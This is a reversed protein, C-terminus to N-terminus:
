RARPLGLHHQAIIGRQIESTGAYITTGKAHRVTHEVRGGRPATPEGLSRLGDPGLLELFDAAQRELRETGFLKSMSGYAHVGQGISNLWATRRSLLRAVEFEARARGVREQTDPDDARRHGTRPDPETAWAVVDSMVRHMETWFGGGGHEKALAVSMVRWGGDVDGIRWRDDVHVDNYFTINTREGSLTDVRQVEVGPQNLPVLFTTLGKHKPVDPNTRALLFVYDGIHANTTFMKQGNIRWGDGERIARTAAAAADSGNEPETFGLVIIIDGALAPPIIERKQEETGVELIVSAIMMTTGIGYLPAAAISMEEHLAQVEMPDRGAGGYEVPWSPAMWGRETLRQSFEPIHNTGTRHIQEHMEPTLAEALFERVEDRFADSREGLRFDV